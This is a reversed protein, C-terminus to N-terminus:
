VEPGLPHASSARVGSQGKGATPRDMPGLRREDRRETGGERKGMGETERCRQRHTREDM